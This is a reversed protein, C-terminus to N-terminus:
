VHKELYDIIHRSAFGIFYGTIASTLMLMPLYTFFIGITNYLISATALQGLNHFAAGATSVGVLTFYEPYGKLIAMILWSLIGGVMSFLIGMPNGSLLSGLLIRIVSVVLAYRAGFIYLTVITMINALGLKAGPALVPIFGEIYHLVIAQATILSLIVMDRTNM